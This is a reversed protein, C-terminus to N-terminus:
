RIPHLISLVGCMRDLQPLPPRRSAQCTPQRVLANSLRSHMSGTHTFLECSNVVALLSQLLLKVTIQQEIAM